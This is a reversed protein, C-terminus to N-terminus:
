ATAGAPLEPAAAGLTIAHAAPTHGHRAHWERATAVAIGAALGAFLAGAVVMTTDPSDPERPYEAPRVVLYRYPFAAAATAAELQADVMRAHLDQYKDVDMRLLARAYVVQEDDDPRATTTGALPDSPGDSLLESDGGRRVYEREMRREEDMLADDNADGQELQELAARTRQLDPNRDGLLAEQQSLEMRLRAVGERRQRQLEERARRKEVLRAYMDSLDDSERARAAHAEPAALGAARARAQRLALVREELQTGLQTTTAQLIEQAERISQVDLRRRTELFEHQAQEVIRLTTAPDSWTARITLVESQTTARLHKSLLDALAEERQERTMPGKLRERLSDKLKMWPARHRDWSELLHASRVIAVLTTRQQVLEVASQEPAEAGFPVARGPHALAPMLYNKKLVLRTQASYSRPLLIAAAVGAAVFVLVCAAAELWRRTVAHRVFEVGRRLTEVDVRVLPAEPAASEPADPRM